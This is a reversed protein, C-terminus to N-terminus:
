EGGVKDMFEKTLIGVELAKEIEILKGLAPYSTGNEWKQVSSQHIGLKDAVDIRTLDRRIRAVKIMLGLRKKKSMNKM